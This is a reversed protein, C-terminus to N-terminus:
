VFLLYIMALVLWLAAAFWLIRRMLALTDGNCPRLADGLAYSDKKYICIGLLGAAAAMPWGGNVSPTRGHDRRAVLLSRRVATPDLAAKAAFGALIIVAAAIRAPVFNLLDDLRAAAKGFYEYKGRYGIMADLTNVARYCLAGPIGLLAFYFLPAVLSDCLNEALSAVAAVAVDERSLDAVDRSCLSRLAARAGDLDDARLLREVRKAAAQLGRLAFSAKLLCVGVVFAIVPWFSALRVVLASALGVGLLLSLLLGLGLFFEYGPDVRRQFFRKEYISAIRGMGVVPHLFAPPEGVVLDLGVAAVLTGVLVFAESTM